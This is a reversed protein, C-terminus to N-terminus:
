SKKLSNHNSKAEVSGNANRNDLDVKCHHEGWAFRERGEDDVDDVVSVRGDDVRSVTLM